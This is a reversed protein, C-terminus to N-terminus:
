GRVVAQMNGMKMELAARLGDGISRMRSNMVDM